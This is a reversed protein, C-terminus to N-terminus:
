EIGSRVGKENQLLKYLESVLVAMPIIWAYTSWDRTQWIMLMPLWSLPLLWISDALAILGLCHHLTFYPSGLLSAAAVLRLRRESSMPFPLLALPWALLGYPWLSANAFGFVTEKYIAFLRAPWGPWVLLTLSIAGASVLLAPILAKFGRQRIFWFTILLILGYNAQLKVGLLLWVVGLWVDPLRNNLVLLAVLIGLLSFIEVQGWWANFLLPSSLVIVWWRHNGRLAYLLAAAIVTASILVQYSLPWGLWSLPYTLLYVWYPTTAEAPPWRLYYLQSDFGAPWFRTVVFFALIVGGLFPSKFVLFAEKIGTVIPPAGM